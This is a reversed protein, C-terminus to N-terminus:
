RGTSAQVLYNYVARQSTGSSRVNSRRMIGTYFTGAPLQRTGPFEVTDIYIVDPRGSPKDIEIRLRNSM